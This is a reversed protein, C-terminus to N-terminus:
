PKSRISNQLDILPQQSVAIVGHRESTLDAILVIVVTILLPLLLSSLSSRVGHAGAAYSSTWCGVAAVVLLILWVGVPILSRLAALREADTAIMGNLADVFTATIDNPAESAAAEAHQWLRSQIQESRRVADALKVPDRLAARAHLRIDVSDRVLDRVAQRHADPLLGGRLWTTWMANAEKVV